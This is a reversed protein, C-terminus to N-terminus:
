NLMMIGGGGADGDIESQSAKNSPSTLSASVGDGFVSYISSSVGM